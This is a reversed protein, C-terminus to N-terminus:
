AQRMDIQSVSELLEGVRFPKHLVKLPKFADLQSAAAPSSLYTLAIVPLDSQSAFGGARLHELLALAEPGDGMDLVLGNFARTALLPLARAVSTAEHFEVIGLQRGVAVMTRRMVFQPEVLLVAAPRLAAKM